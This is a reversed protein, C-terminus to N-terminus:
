GPHKEKEQDEDVLLNSEIPQCSVDEECPQQPVAKAHLCLCNCCTVDCKASLSSAYRACCTVKSSTTTSVPSKRRTHGRGSSQQEQLKSPRRVGNDYEEM